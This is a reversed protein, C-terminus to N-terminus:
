CCITLVVVAILLAQLIIAVISVYMITKANEYVFKEIKERCGPQPNSTPCTTCTASTDNPYKGCCQLPLKTQDPFEKCDDIGCCLGDFTMLVNWTATATQGEADTGGYHKQAEQLAKILIAPIRKPDSFLYAVVIIEAILIVTLVIAYIKLLIGLGCCVSIFGFLCVLALTFGVAMLVISLGDANDVMFKALERMEDDGVNFKDFIKELLNEVVSKSSKLLIGLIGIAVFAVCLTINIIQLVLKFGCSIVCGM